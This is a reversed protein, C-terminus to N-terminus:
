GEFFDATDLGVEEKYPEQSSNQIVRDGSVVLVVLKMM